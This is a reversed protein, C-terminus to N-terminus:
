SREELRLDGPKTLLWVLNVLEEGVYARVMLALLTLHAAPTFPAAPLPLSVTARRVTRRMPAAPAALVRAAGLGSSCAAPEVVLRVASAHAALV